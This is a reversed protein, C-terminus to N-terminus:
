KTINKLLIFSKKICDFFNGFTQLLQGFIIENSFHYIKAGKGFNGLFTPSKPLNNPSLPKLLQGLDLLDGLRTVSFVTRSATEDFRFVIQREGDFIRKQRWSRSNQGFITVLVSYVTGISTRWLSRLICMSFAHEISGSSLVM